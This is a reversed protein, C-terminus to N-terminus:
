PRTVWNSKLTRPSRDLKSNNLWDSLHNPSSVSSAGVSSYEPELNPHIRECMYKWVCKWRKRRLTNSICQFFSRLRDSSDEWYPRLLNRTYFITVFSLGRSPRVSIRLILFVLKVDDSKIEVFSCHFSVDSAKTVNSLNFCPLTRELMSHSMASFPASRLYPTCLFPISMVLDWLSSSNVSSMSILLENWELPFSRPNSQGDVTGLGFIQKGVLRKSTCTFINRQIHNIPVSLQYVRSM